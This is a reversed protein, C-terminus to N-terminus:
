CQEGLTLLGRPPPRTPLNAPTWSGPSTPSVRQGEPEDNAAPAQLIQLSHVVASEHQISLVLDERNRLVAQDEVDIAWSLGCCPGPLRHAAWLASDVWGARGPRGGGGGQEWLVRPTGLIGQAPPHAAPAQLASSLLRM